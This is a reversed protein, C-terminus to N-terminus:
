RAGPPCYTKLYNTFLTRLHETTGEGERIGHTRNPYPMFQFQKNHKVLENVLIEANQYHVNDDGTGHIYLLNGALNKAYTVPSGSVFDELNEQPLGMYREQYINDYTLQNSIAAISIGTKYIEPYQFMLNLTASGGGSHGWVAIREPDVFNWKLIEKAAMAQDKINIQGINRYISKRWERGKPAPTGRNDLSIYIYGDEAMNGVYNRNRGAGYSDNVTTSAPETYVYFVVPYKKSADFNTPKVMWGDMEVGEATTVKFFEVKSKEVLKSLNAEIGYEANIPQHNAFTILESAPKTFHNSFSHIAFAGTPSVNYEHTGELTKPSVLELKGKGNLKTKYLYSQTANNPSAMFYVYGNKIDIYSLDIFDYNGKTILQEKEGELSVNYLHRWGDKETAWLINKGNNYWIFNNTFDVTYKNGAQYIDVWAADKEEQILKSAGTKPEAIFLKSQNQKRNLQQILLKETSPIFEMRVLYHQRVDGPINIWTTKADDVSVVGVKCASPSEGVKPYELPIIQSYISDTNNIMYFKKIDSADIQWYAISESDPSWRFGDRCAFEEEYVWDFTGNILTATGDTTLAKIKSTSLDEVYINNDSVYAALKGNPSIKAFMLSSEPLTKGIQQLAGTALNLVWYDGKTNIRWVRKTNTFLLVKQEDNSFKFYNVELPTNGNKPTLQEKSILVKAENNPLTYQVIGESQISYYSKGDNSWKFGNQSFGQISLAIFLLFVLTSKLKQTFKSINM